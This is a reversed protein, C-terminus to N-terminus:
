VSASGEIESHSLKVVTVELIEPGHCVFAADHLSCLAQVDRRLGYASLYAKKLLGHPLRQEIPNTPTEHQRFHTM